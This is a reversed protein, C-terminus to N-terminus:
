GNVFDGVPRVNIFLLVVHRLIGVFGDELTAAELAKERVQDRKGNEESQCEM